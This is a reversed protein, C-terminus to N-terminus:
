LTDALSVIARLEEEPHQWTLLIDKQYLDTKLRQFAKLNEAHTPM